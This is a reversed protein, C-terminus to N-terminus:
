LTRGDFHFQGYWSIFNHFLYNWIPCWLNDIDTWQVHLTEKHRGRLYTLNETLYVYLYNQRGM